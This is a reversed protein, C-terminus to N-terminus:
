LFSSIWSSLSDATSWKVRHRLMTIDLVFGVKWGKFSERKDEFIWNNRQKWINWSALIVVETFCPDKFSKKAFSLSQEASYNRWEIQLYNWVRSSFQCTFFMHKWDKLVLNGEM